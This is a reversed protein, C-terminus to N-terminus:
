GNGQACLGAAVLAEMQIEADGRRLAQFRRALADIMRVKLTKDM